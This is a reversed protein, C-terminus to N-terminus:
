NRHERAIVTGTGIVHGFVDHGGLEDGVRCSREISVERGEHLSRLTTRSLTEGIADFSVRHGALKVVTLCVGDVSVSAGIELGQTVAADLEVSFCTVGELADVAGVPYLGRTIGSYMGRSRLLAARRCGVMCSQRCAPLQTAHQGM